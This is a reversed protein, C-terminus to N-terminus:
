TTATARGVFAARLMSVAAYTVAFAVVWRLAVMPLSKVIYAAILVGPIGGLTLGLATSQHFRASKLFQFSAVPMLFASSATMIPFAGIPNMGLLSLMILCPGYNGVGLTMLAGLVFNVGLAFWLKWGALSLADGGSPLLGLNVSVFLAAAILLAFGMGLQINQRDLRVVVNAGLWAGLIAMVIMAVLLVPDVEIISVFILAQAISPVAHGINLTGPIEEAPMLNRARIVATTPAFSGIGLVDFFNTVFGLVLTFWSPHRDVGSAAARRAQRSWALLLWAALAVLAALLIVRIDNM